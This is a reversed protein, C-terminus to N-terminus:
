QAEQGNAVYYRLARVIQANKTRDGEAALAKIQEDLEVPLRVEFRVIEGTPNTAAEM